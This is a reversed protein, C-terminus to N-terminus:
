WILVLVTSAFLLVFVVIAVLSVIVAPSFKRTPPPEPESLGSTQASDPPTSGPAVGGGPELDPTRAPDPDPPQATM